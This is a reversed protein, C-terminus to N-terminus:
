YKKPVGKLNKSINSKWEDTFDKSTRNTKKGPQKRGTLSKSISNKSEETHKKNKFGGISGSTGEGGDTKNMLIGTKIDKRGWLRILRREIALAGVETLNQELIIIKSLDKPVPISHKEIARKLKGKGIYYPTGAASTDSDNTRIYAYVYFGIPPYNKSYINM